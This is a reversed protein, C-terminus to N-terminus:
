KEKKYFDGEFDWLAYIYEGNTDGKVSYVKMTIISNSVKGLYKGKNAITFDNNSDLVYKTDNITIFENEADSIKGITKNTTSIFAACICILIMVAAIIKKM